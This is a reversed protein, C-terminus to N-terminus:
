ARLASLPRPPPPAELRVRADVVVAGHQAAVLPDLDLEAVESHAEVLASLRLLVDEIAEIDCPTSGRYGSLLPFTRLTRLMERADTDTLPTIRAAADGMLEATAGAPGCVIVPGFSADHAVGVLLEVGTPAMPQVVFGDLRHGSASVAARIESAARRVEAGSHLGLRVAGVDSRHLLGGVLAKLAVPGALSAAAEAAEGASRVVHAALLPLGYCDLLAAVAAPGLWQEGAGLSRAIIAAAEDPRAGNPELVSGPARGRWSGYRAAHALARVADEPFGFRPVRGGEGSPEVAAGDSGMFVSALTIHPASNAAEQIERAVDGADSLLPPVNITLIADVAGSRALVEITRRYDEGSATALMDIPNALSADAPLLGRLRRRVDAALEVVDLGDTRCADACLTAPGGANSVIAVRGGDPVPQACLLAAVDFLEHITDARIVGAQAFLADVTVDSSSLLAGTHSSTARAGAASRGGKVAVIPKARGVRRAIRAFRRPNGFSELYLLMVDTGPDEEWYQLLDNGSIDAKNGVSIFSSLGLGHRGALELMAIGLAGSQSLFGVNGSQPMAGAFTAHLRVDPAANLLGLCDPGVLRMGTERCIALLERQRRAGEPGADAFGASLVVLARVGAAGCERAVDAVGPASVAVLALEVQEPVEAISRYARVGAVSSAHHNVPYVAGTFGAGLLNHLLESGATGRRRSAGIVAVCSPQLFSRVAAVAATRERQEFRGLAEDSLSTPFEVDIVDGRIHLEVPFGSNRFVDIMRHNRPLVEASFVSIAHEQAAAALQGLMITAIGYGQWQDAVVFAVEAREADIRIYAGHGVIAQESGRTAVLAYRDAYDVDVAWKTIWDVSPAGFFRLGMSELSLTEFFVRMAPADGPAVPRVRLTSGDRLAVDVARDPADEPAPVFSM